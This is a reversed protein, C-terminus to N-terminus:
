TSASGVAAAKDASTPVGYSASSWSSVVADDVYLVVPLPHPRKAVKGALLSPPASLGQATSILRNPTRTTVGFTVSPGDSGGRM